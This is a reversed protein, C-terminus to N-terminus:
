KVTITPKGNSSFATPGYHMVSGYDYPSGRSNISSKSAIDFNEYLGTFM